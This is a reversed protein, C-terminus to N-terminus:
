KCLYYILLILLFPGMTELCGNNTCNKSEEDDRSLFYDCVNTDETECHHEECYGYKCHECLGCLHFMDRAKYIDNKSM